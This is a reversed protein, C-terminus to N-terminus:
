ILKKINIMIDANLVKILACALYWTYCTVVSQNQILDAYIIM